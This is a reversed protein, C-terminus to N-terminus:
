DKPGTVMAHLVQNRLNKLLTLARDNIQMQGPQRQDGYLMGLVAGDKVIPLLVFGGARVKKGFWEPLRQAIVPDATDNIHTDV